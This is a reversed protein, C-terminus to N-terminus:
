SCEGKVRITLYMGYILEWHYMYEEVVSNLGFPEGKYQKLIERTDDLRQGKGVVYLPVQAGRASYMDFLTKKESPRLGRVHTDVAM